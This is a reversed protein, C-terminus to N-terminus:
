SERQKDGLRIPSTPQLGNIGRKDAAKKAITKESM